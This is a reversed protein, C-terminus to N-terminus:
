DERLARMPDVKAARRAPIYCALLSVAALVGTVALYTPKDTPSVGFLLGRFARGAAASLAFGITVGVGTLLLGERLVTQLTQRPSSGLAMRIGFERTRRATYFAAVAYLGIAALLLSGVGFLALLDTIFHVPGLFEDWAADMTQLGFLAVRGEAERVSERIAPAVESLSGAYRVHLVYRGPGAFSKALPLFVFNGREEPRLAMRGGPGIASFAGNPAVGAVRVEGGGISLVRGVAPEGPWLAQALKQNVVAGATVDGTGRLMAVGLARLYDPGVVNADTTLGGGSGAASVTLGTSARPPAADAYSAAVVGPVAALRRRIHELVALNQAADPAAGRTDVNALLLHDKDFALGTADMLTVSRWVLGASTLLLVCLALQAVVLVNALPSRGQIVCHEGAKLFPLIEQRWGRMAPALTFAVTCCVALLLAYLTV